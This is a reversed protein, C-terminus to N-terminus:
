ASRRLKTGSSVSKSFRHLLQSFSLGIAMFLRSHKRTMCVTRMDYNFATTLGEYAVTVEYLCYTTGDTVHSQAGARSEHSVFRLSSPTLPGLLSHSYDRDHFLLVHFSTSWRLLVNKSNQHNKWIKWPLLWSISIISRPFEYRWRLLVDRSNQHNM